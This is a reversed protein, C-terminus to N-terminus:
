RKPPNQQDGRQCLEPIRLKKEVRRIPYRDLNVPQKNSMAFQFRVMEKTPLDVYFM